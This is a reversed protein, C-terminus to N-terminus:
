PLIGSSPTEGDSSVMRIKARARAKRIVLQPVVATM